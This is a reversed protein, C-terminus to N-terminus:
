TNLTLPMLWIKLNPIELRSNSDSGVYNGDFYNRQTARISCYGNNNLIIIKILNKSTKLTQLEQLNLMLSGDSEILFTPYNQENAELAGVLAPLGYGM